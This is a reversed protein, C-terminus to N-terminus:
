FWFREIGHVLLWFMVWFFACFSMLQCARKVDEVEAEGFAQGIYPKEVLQGNYHSPGGLKIAFRGAFAAEPYGANPSSHNRGEAWATQFARKGWRGSGLMILLVAIRAPIYNAVDDLRAAFKGFQAYTETKYGIMSDLTNVMKYALALPAGGIAAFFLPSVVGDVLNEAETEVTARIVGQEDLNQVDRGVILSLAKRAEELNGKKLLRYVKLGADDLDRASICFYILIVQMAEGAMPHYSAALNVLALGANFAAVILLVSMLAGSLFKPIPLKRFPAELVSIADGMLRVPHLSFRPDGFGLDLVFAFPLLKLTTFFEM